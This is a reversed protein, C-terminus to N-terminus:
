ANGITFVYYDSNARAYLVESILRISIRNILSTKNVPKAGLIPTGLPLGMLKFAFLGTM